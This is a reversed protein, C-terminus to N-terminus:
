PNYLWQHIATGHGRLFAAYIRSLILYGAPALCLAPIMSLRVSRTRVAKIITFALAALWSAAAILWWPALFLGLSMMLRMMRDQMANAPGPPLSFFHWFLVFYIAAVAYLSLLAAREQSQGRLLFLREILNKLKELWYHVDPKKM